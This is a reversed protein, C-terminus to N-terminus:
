RLQRCSGGYCHLLRRNRPRPHASAAAEANVACLRVTRDHMDIGAGVSSTLSAAADNPRVLMTIVADVIYPALGREPSIAFGDDSASAAMGALGDRPWAAPGRSGVLTGGVARDGVGLGAGRARPAWLGHAAVRARYCDRVPRRILRGFAEVRDRARCGLRPARTSARPRSATASRRAIPDIPRRRWAEIARRNLEPPCVAWARAQALTNGIGVHQSAIPRRDPVFESTFVSHEAPRPGRPRDGAGPPVASFSANGLRPSADNM